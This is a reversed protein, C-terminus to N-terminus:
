KHRGDDTRTWKFNWWVRSTKQRQANHGNVEDMSQQRRPRGNRWKAVNREGPNSVNRPAVSQAEWVDRISNEILNSTFFFLCVPRELVQLDNLSCIWPGIVGYLWSLEM